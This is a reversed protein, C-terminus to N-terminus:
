AHGFLTLTFSCTVWALKLFENIKTQSLSSRALFCALEWKEKGKFPYYPNVRQWCAFDNDQVRKFTNAGQGYGYSSCPHYEVSPTSPVSAESIDPPPPPPPPPPSPSPPAHNQFANLGHEARQQTVEETFASIAKYDDLHGNCPPFRNNLHALIAWSSDFTQWCKPCLHDLLQLNTSQPNTSQM